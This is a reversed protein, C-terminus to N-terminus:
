TIYQQRKVDFKNGYDYSPRHSNRVRTDACFCRCMEFKFFFFVNKISQLPARTLQGVIRFISVLTGRIEKLEKERESTPVCWSPECLFQFGYSHNIRVRKHARFCLFLKEFLQWRRCVIVYTFHPDIPQFPFFYEQFFFFWSKTLDQVAGNYHAYEVIIRM